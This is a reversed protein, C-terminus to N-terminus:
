QRGMSHSLWMAANAFVPEGYYGTYQNKLVFHGLNASFPRTQRHEKKAGLPM